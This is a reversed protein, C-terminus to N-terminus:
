GGCRLAAGETLGLIEAVSYPKSLVRRFGYRVSNELNWVEDNGTVAVQIPPCTRSKLLEAVAYSQLGPLDLDLLVLDFANAAFAARADIGTHVLTCTRGFAELVACLIAGAAASPNVVLIRGRGEYARIPRVRRDRESCTLVLPAVGTPDGLLVSRPSTRLISELGLVFGTLSGDIRDLHRVILFLAGPQASSRNLLATVARYGQVSSRGACDLFAVTEELDPSSRSEPERVNPIAPGRTEPTM